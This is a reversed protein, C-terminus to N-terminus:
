TKIYAKIINPARPPASPQPVTSYAPLDRTGNGITYNFIKVSIVWIVRGAASHAQPRSLKQCFHTGPILGPPYLCGTRLASLRVVMMQQIDQFRPAEDEEFM